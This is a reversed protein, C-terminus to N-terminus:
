VQSRLVTVAAIRSPASCAHLQQNSGACARVDLVFLAPLGVLAAAIGLQTHQKAPGCVHVVIIGM